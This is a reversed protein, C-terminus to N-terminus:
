EMKHCVTGLILPTVYVHMGTLIYNWKETQINFNSAQVLIDRAWIMHHSSTPFAHCYQFIFDIPESCFCCQFWYVNIHVVDQVICGSCQKTFSSNIYVRASIFATLTGGLPWNKFPIFILQSQEIKGSCIIM